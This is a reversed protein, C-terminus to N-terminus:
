KALPWSSRVSRLIAALGPESVLDAAQEPDFWQTEREAQEPWNELQRSVRLLFVGVEVRANAGGGLDKEYVYRGIPTQSVITGELGAEEFAERAATAGPSLRRIPWGKPIVWRRTGRSTLLLVQMKGQGSFRVPIAAYQHRLKSKPKAQQRSKVAGIRRRMALGISRHM